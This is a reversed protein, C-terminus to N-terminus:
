AVLFDKLSLEPIQIDLHVMKKVIRMKPKQLVEVEHKMQNEQIIQVVTKMKEHNRPSMQVPVRKKEHTKPNMKRKVTPDAEPLVM